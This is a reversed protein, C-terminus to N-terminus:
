NSATDGSITPDCLTPGAAVCATQLSDRVQSVETSPLSDTFGNFTALVFTLVGAIVADSDNESPMIGYQLSDGNVVITQATDVFNPLGQIQIRIARRLDAQLFDSHYLPPTGTAGKADKEHCNACVEQFRAEGRTLMATPYTAPYVAIYVTETDTGFGHAVIQYSTSASLTKPTGSIIGTLPNLSIGAPLPSIASYTMVPGQYSGPTDPTIPVNPTTWIIGPGAKNPPYLLGYSVQPSRQDCFTNSDGVCVSVITTAMGSPGSATVTYNAAAAKANPTGSIVGSQTNFTLGPPLAPTLSYSSIAGGATDVVSDPSIAKGASAAIASYTFNPVFPGKGVQCFVASDSVCITVIATSTGSPGSATITYNEAPSGATPTGSIVGTKSNLLLGPPFAPSVSFGTIAASGTAVASDLTDLASDKVITIGVRKYSIAPSYPSTGTDNCSVVLATLVTLLVSAASIWGLTGPSFKRRSFQVMDKEMPNEESM